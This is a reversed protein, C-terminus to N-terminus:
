VNHIGKHTLVIGGYAMALLKSAYLALYIWLLFLNGTLQAVFFLSKFGDIDALCSAVDLSFHAMLSIGVILNVVRKM